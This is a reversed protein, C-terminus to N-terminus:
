GIGNVICVGTLGCIAGAKRRNKNRKGEKVVILERGVRTKSALYGEAFTEAAAEKDKQDAYQSLQKMKDM